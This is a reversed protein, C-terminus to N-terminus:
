IVFSSLLIYAKHESYVKIDKATNSKIVLLENPGLVFDEGDISIRFANDFSYLLNFGYDALIIIESTEKIYFSKLQGKSGNALMLNFDRAKSYSTTDIHGPFEHVEFPKLNVSELGNHSLKLDKDLPTIFRNVGDLKTFESQDLEVTATSVRVKFDRESYKSDKPYIFLETTKGGAWTSTNFDEERLIEMYNDM